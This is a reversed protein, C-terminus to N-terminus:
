ESIVKKAYLVLLCCNLALAALQVGTGDALIMLILSIHLVIDFARKNFIDNVSKKTLIDVFTGLVLLCVSTTCFVIAWNMM